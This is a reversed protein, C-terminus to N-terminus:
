HTLEEIVVAVDYTADQPPPDSAFVAFTVATGVKPQCLSSYQNWMGGPQVILQGGVNGDQGTKDTWDVVISWVTQQQVVTSASDYLSIRYLGEVAPTLITTPPVVATQGSLHIEKVVKWQPVGKSQGYSFGACMMMVALLVIARRM